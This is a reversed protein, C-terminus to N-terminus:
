LLADVVFDPGHKIHMIRIVFVAQPSEEVTFIIRYQDAVIRRFADGVLEYTEQVPAHATPMEALRDIVELIEDQVKAARGDSQNEAVYELIEALDHRAAPTVIVQYTGAM